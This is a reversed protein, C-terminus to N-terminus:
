VIKIECVGFADQGTIVLKVQVFHSINTSTILNDKPIKLQFPLQIKEEPELTYDNFTIVGVKSTSEKTKEKEKIEEATLMYLIIKDINVAYEGGTFTAMGKVSEQVAAQEKQLTVEIKPAGAGVMSKLSDMFGM